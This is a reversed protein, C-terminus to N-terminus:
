AGPIGGASPHSDNCDPSDKTHSTTIEGAAVTSSSDVVGRNLSSSSITPANAESAFGACFAIVTTTADSIPSGSDVTGSRSRAVAKNTKAVADCYLLRVRNRVVLNLAACETCLPLDGDGRVRNWKEIFNGTKCDDNDHHVDHAAVAHFPAAKRPGAEM